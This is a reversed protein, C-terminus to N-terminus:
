DNERLQNLFTLLQADIFVFVVFTISEALLDWRNGLPPVCKM